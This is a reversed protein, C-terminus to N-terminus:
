GPSRARITECPGLRQALRYFHGAVICGALPGFKGAAAISSDWIELAEALPMELFSFPGGIAPNLQPAAEWEAWGDDHHTIAEVVEPSFANTGISSDARRQHPCAGGALHAALGSATPLEIERRIMDNMARGDRGPSHITFRVVSDRVITQSRRVLGAAAPRKSRDAHRGSRRQLQAIGGLEVMTGDARMLRNAASRGPNAALWATPRIRGAASRHAALADAAAPVRDARM